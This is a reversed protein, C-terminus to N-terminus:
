EEGASDNRGHSGRAQDVANGDNVNKGDGTREDGSSTHKAPRRDAPRDQALMSELVALLGAKSEFNHAEGSVTRQVRGHWTPSSPENQDGNAAPAECWIRLLFLHTRQYKSRNDSMPM